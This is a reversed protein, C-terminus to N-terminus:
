KGLSVTKNKGQNWKLFSRLRLNKYANKDLYSPQLKDLSTKEWKRVKFLFLKKKGIAYTFIILLYQVVKAM